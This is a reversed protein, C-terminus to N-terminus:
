NARFRRILGGLYCNEWLESIIKRTLLIFVCSLKEKYSISSKSGVRSFM